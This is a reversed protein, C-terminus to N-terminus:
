ANADGAGRKIEVEISKVAKKADERAAMKEAETPRDDPRAKPAVSAFSMVHVTALIGSAASTFHARPRADRSHYSFGLNRCRDAISQSDFSILGAEHAFDNRIKRITDLDTRCEESIVGLYFAMKIRSSFASLPANGEFLDNAISRSNVFSRSLLDSLASDLYAAAFLACGRDSEM